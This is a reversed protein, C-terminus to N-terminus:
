APSRDTDQQLAEIIAQDAPPFRYFSLEQPSVWRLEASDMPGPEGHVIHCRYFHIEVTLDPYHHRIFRFLTPMDIRVNLEEYLERCLCEEMTEGSERKGGPFEWFGGLYVDEKRRAILYRGNQYILGAAVEISKM